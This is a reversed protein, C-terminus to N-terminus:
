LVLGVTIGGIDAAIDFWDFGTTGIFEDNVEKLIGIFLAGAIIEQNNWSRDELVKVIFASYVLHDLKDKMLMKKMTIEWLDLESQDSHSM